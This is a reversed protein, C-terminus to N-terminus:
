SAQINFFRDGRLTETLPYSIHHFQLTDKISSQTATTNANASTSSSRGRQTKQEKIAEDYVVKHTSKLHNFLNTTNGQLASM